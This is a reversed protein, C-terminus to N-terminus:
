FRQSNCLLVLVAGLGLPRLSLFSALHKSEGHKGYIEEEKGAAQLIQGLSEKQRLLM